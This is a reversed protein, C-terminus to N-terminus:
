FNNSVFTSFSPSSVWILSWGEAGEAVVLYDKQEVNGKLGRMM